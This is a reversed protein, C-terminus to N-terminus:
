TDHSPKSICGDGQSNNLRDSGNDLDPKRKLLKRLELHCQLSVIGFYIWGCTQLILSFLLLKKEFTM